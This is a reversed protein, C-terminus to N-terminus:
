IKLSSPIDKENIFFLNNKSRTCAVYFKSLTLPALEQLNNPYNRFTAQNLVVCVNQYSLGKVNGWNDASMKYKNSNKLFLKKIKSDELILRIEDKREILKIITEDSRHSKMNIDLKNSIFQAITKSCRHTAQLREDDFHFGKMEFAEKYRRYNSRINKGKNGRQSSYFTSQYFDGVATVPINLKGLSMLWDFDDSAFDQVEDIFVKDFFRNIREIYPVDKQLLFRSLQNSYIRGDKTYPNKQYYPPRDFCIGKLPYDCQLPSYCFRYLFEFLGFVHINDPCYGFKKIISFRLGEQNAKTYTILAVRERINLEELLFTTKGAGAVAQIMLKDM